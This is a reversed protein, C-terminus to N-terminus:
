PKLRIAISLYLGRPMSHYLSRFNWRQLGKNITLSHHWAHWWEPLHGQEFSLRFIYMAFFRSLRIKSEERPPFVSAGRGGGEHVSM